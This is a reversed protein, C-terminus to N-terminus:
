HITGASTSPELRGRPASESARKKVSTILGQLKKRYNNVRNKAKDVSTYFLDFMIAEDSEVRRTTQELKQLLYVLHDRAYVAISSNRKSQNVRIWFTVNTQTRPDCQVAIATTTEGGSEHDCLLSLSDLFTQWTTRVRKHPKEVIRRQNRQNPSTKEAHRRVHQLIHQVLLSRYFKEYTENFEDAM